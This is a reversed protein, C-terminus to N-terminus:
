DEVGFYEFDDRFMRSVINVWIAGFDPNEQIIERAWAQMNARMVIAIPNTSSLWWDESGYYSSIQRNKQWYPLFENVFVKGAETTQAIELNPWFTIMEDLIEKSTPAKVLGGKQAYGPLEDMLQTRRIRFLQDKYKSPLASREYLSKYATYRFYGITDNVVKQFEEPSLTEVAGMGYQAMIEQYSRDEYPNEPLLYYHSLPLQGLVEENEKEWELVRPSFARKGGKAVTKSTMLWGHEYGYLTYFSKYAAVHDENHYEYLRQYEKALIQTGWVKGNKDEIFYRPTFGTPLVAQAIFRLAFTLKAKDKAYELLAADLHEPLLEKKFDFATKGRWPIEKLYKDLDGAKLLRDGARETKLLKYLDITTSARMQYIESDENGERFGLATFLKMLSPHRPLWAFEGSPPGFDGFLVERIENYVGGEPLIKNIAWGAMPTPGPVFGQGLLNVGTVFARPSMKVNSDQGFILNSMWGGAPYVFMEQGSGNPDEAFFGDGSFGITNAGRAGKIGLQAKRALVPNEILLKPWTTLMEFWVEPFPFINRTMDSLKHRKTIDYLLAKTSELGFAKSTNNIAEYGKDGKITGGTAGKHMQLELDKIFRKPIKAEKAEKVFRKQLTPHLEHWKSQIYLWRYQKFSSSRNLYNIPREMMNRFIADMYYDLSEQLKGLPLQEKSVDVQNKVIGLNLNEEDIRRRISKLIAERDKRHLGKLQGNELIPMFVKENDKNKVLIRKGDKGIDEFHGDPNWIADRLFQNGEYQTEVKYSYKAKDFNVGEEPNYRLYDIGEELHHGTRIRIRAEIAKAYEYAENLNNKVKEMKNGGVKFLENRLKIGEKSALWKKVEVGEDEFGLEAIKRTFPDKRMMSLEFLIGEAYSAEGPRVDLYQLAKGASFRSGQINNLSWGQHLTEMYEIDNLFDADMSKIKRWFAKKDQGHSMSWQLLEAPHNWFSSLGAAYVRAQEELFIRTFFAPRLLVIPKFVSSTYFDLTTTLADKMVKNTPIFTHSFGEKGGTKAYKVLNEGISKITGGHGLDEGMYGFWKSQARDMMRHNLLPAVNDAAEALTMMSPIQISVYKTKMGEGTLLELKFEQVKGGVFPMHHTEGIKGSASAGNSKFYSSVFQEEGTLSEVHQRVLKAKEIAKENGTELARTMVLNSDREMQQYAFKKMGTFDTDKIKLWEEIIKDAKGVEYRAQQLHSLLQKTALTKNMLPLGAEPIMSLIKRYYPDLGSRFSSSFGLVRDLESIGTDYENRLSKFAESMGDVSGLTKKWPRNQQVIKVGPDSHKILRLTGRSIAKTIGKAQHPLAGLAGGLSRITFNDSAGVGRFVRGLLYSQGGPMADIHQITKLEVQRKGTKFMPVSEVGEDLMNKFLRQIKRWDDEKSIYQWVEPELNLRALAPNSTLTSISKENAMSKFVNISEPLNTVQSPTQKMITPRWGGILGHKWLLRRDAKYQKNVDSLILKKAGGTSDDVLKDLEKSSKADLLEDQYALAEDMSHLFKKGDKARVKIIKAIPDVARAAKGLKVLSLIGGTIYEAPLASTFDLLGSVTQFEKTGPQHIQGAEYRGWSYDMLKQEELHQLAAYETVNTDDYNTRRDAFIKIKNPNEVSLYNLEGNEDRKKIPTGIKAYYEAKAQVEDGGLRVLIEQYRPDEEAFVSEFFFKKSRDFNVADGRAVKKTADWIYNEGGEKIGEKFINYYEIMEEVTTNNPDGLKPVQTYRVLAAVNGQSVEPSYGQELLDDYRHLDQIYRWVRGQARYPPMTGLPATLMDSTPFPNWKNWSERIADLVGLGWVGLQANGLAASQISIVMDDTTKESGFKLNAYEWRECEDIMAQTQYEDCLERVAESMPNIKMMALTAVMSKPLIPAFSTHAIALDVIEPNQKFYEQYSTHINQKAISSKIIDEEEKPGLWM